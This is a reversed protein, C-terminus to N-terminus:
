PAREGSAPALRRRESEFRRKRILRGLRDAPVLEACLVAGAGPGPQGYRVGAPLEERAQWGERTHLYLEHERVRLGAAGALALWEAPPRQLYWGGDEPEGTPVTLLLSGDRRLVRRLERLAEAAGGRGGGEVGYVSNDCGVHELTSICVVYDFARAPFPLRRVDGVVLQMGPVDAPALDVGDLRSFGSTLLAGIYAPEANATGVDLLRTGARTRALTWAIEIPREDVTAPASLQRPREAKARAWRASAVADDLAEVRVFEESSLLERLLTAPSVSGDRLRALTEVRAQQEVPRRLVLRYLRDVLQEDGAAALELQAELREQV